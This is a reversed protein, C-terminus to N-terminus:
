YNRLKMFSIHSINSIIIISRYTLSINSFSDENLPTTGPLPLSIPFIGEVGSEGWEFVGDCGLELM